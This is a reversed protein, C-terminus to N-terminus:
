FVSGYPHSSTIPTSSIESMGSPMTLEESSIGYRISDIEHDDQGAAPEDLFNGFRDKARRYSECKGHLDQLNSAFFLRDLALLNNLCANGESVRNYAKQVQCGYQGLEKQWIDISAPRDHGCWVRRVHFLRVFLEAQKLHEDPPVTRKEAPHWSALVTWQGEHNRASVSLAPNVDGWDVGLVVREWRNPPAESLLHHPAIADLIRGTLAKPICDLEETADNGYLQRLEAEWQSEAELSYPTNTVLCIRQYLGDAIATKLPYTHLSFQDGKEGKLVSQVLDNFDNDAGNHTSIISVRGGWMIIALAAKLLEGLDNHFAAEDIIIRGKKNRLNTPRSSLATVRHGSAFRVRFALIDQDEDALAFEEVVSAALNYAKAWMAVDAIYQEAMDYNYGIYWADHGSSQAATLAADAADAWSVGIRRSKQTLKVPSLDKM